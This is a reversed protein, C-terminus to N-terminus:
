RPRGGVQPVSACIEEESTPSTRESTAVRSDLGRLLDQLWADDAAQSADKVVVFYLPLPSVHLVQPQLSLCTLSLGREILAPQVAEPTNNCCLSSLCSRQASAASPELENTMLPQSISDFSSISYSTSSHRRHMRQKLAQLMTMHSQSGETALPSGAHSANSLSATRRAHSPIAAELREHHQKSPNYPPISAIAPSTAVISVQSLACSSTASARADPGESSRCSQSSVLSAKNQDEAEPPATASERPPVALNAKALMAEVIGKAGVNGIHKQSLVITKLPVGVQIAEAISQAGESGMKNAALNLYEVHGGGRPATGMMQSYLRQLAATPSDERVRSMLAASLAMTSQKGFGSGALNLHELHSSNRIAVALRIGSGGPRLRCQKIKLHKLPVNPSELLEQIVRVAHGDLTCRSLTLTTLCARARLLAPLDKLSKHGM